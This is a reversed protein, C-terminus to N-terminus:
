PRPQGNNYLRSSDGNLHNRESSLRPIVYITNAGTAPPNVNGLVASSPSRYTPNVATAPPNNGPAAFLWARVVQSLRSERYRKYFCGIVISVLIVIALSPAIVVIIAILNANDQDQDEKGDLDVVTIPGLICSRNMGPFAESSLLCTFSSGNREHTVDVELTNVISGIVKETEGQHHQWSLSVEPVAEESRCYLEVHEGAIFKDNDQDHSCVPFDATPFYLVKVEVRDSGGELIDWHTQNPQPRIAYCFYEGANTRNIEMFTLTYSMQVTTQTNEPEVVLISNGDTRTSVITDNRVWKTPSELKSKQEIVIFDGFESQQLGSVLCRIDVRENEYVTNSGQVAINLVVSSVNVCTLILCALRLYVNTCKAAM